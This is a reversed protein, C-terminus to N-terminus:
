LRMGVRGGQAKGERSVKKRVVEREEEDGGDDYNEV